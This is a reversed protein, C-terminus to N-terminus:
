EQERLHTSTLRMASEFSSPKSAKSFPAKDMGRYESLRASVEAETRCFRLDKAEIVWVRLSDTSVALVDIDGLTQEVKANLIWSLKVRTWARLGLSRLREAVREEFALGAEEARKGVYSKAIDSTWFQNQLTGDRLGSLAYMTADSVLIPSVLLLPDDDMDLALFPRNILSCRRDFRGLDLDAATLGSSFDHWSNRSSLTLRKLM